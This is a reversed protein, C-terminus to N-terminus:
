KSLDEKFFHYVFSGAQITGLYEGPDGPITDGTGYICVTQEIPAATEDVIAWITPVGKQDQLDLAHLPPAILTQRGNWVLPYKYIKM